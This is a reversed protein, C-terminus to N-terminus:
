KGKLWKMWTPLRNSKWFAYPQAIPSFKQYFRAVGPLDSGEFDLLLGTGAFEKILADMLFHNAELTRGDPLTTSAINYIRKEDKLFLGTSLLKGSPLRVERVFAKGNEIWSHALATLSEFDVERIHMRKGYYQKYLQIAETASTQITYQLNFKETRKLNKLLDNKYNLRIAEHSRDLPLVFNQHKAPLPESVNDFNLFIEVLKYEIALKSLFSPIVARYKENTYIVGLQQAFAPQCVYRFGMKSRWTVPMVAKYDGCVLADWGPSMADLFDSSAYVLGNIAVHICANWKQKDIKAHSVYVIADPM